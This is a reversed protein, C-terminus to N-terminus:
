SVKINIRNRYDSISTAKGRIDTEWRAFHHGCLMLEGVPYKAVVFAQAGCYDCRDKVDLELDPIPSESKPRQVVKASMTVESVEAREYFLM